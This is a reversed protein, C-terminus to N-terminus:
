FTLRIIRLVSLFTSFPSSHSIILTSVCLANSFQSTFTEIKELSNEDLNALREKARKRLKFYAKEVKNVDENNM